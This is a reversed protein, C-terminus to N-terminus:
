KFVVRVVFKCDVFMYLYCWLNYIVIEVYMFNIFSNLWWFYELCIKKIFLFWIVYVIVVFEIRYCSEM